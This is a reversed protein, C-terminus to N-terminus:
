GLDSMGIVRPQNYLETAHPISTGPINELLREFGNERHKDFNM